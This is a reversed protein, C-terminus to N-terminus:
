RGQQLTFASQTGIGTFSGSWGRITFTLSQQSPQDATIQFDTKPLARRLYAAVTAADPSTIVGTLANPQDVRTDIVTSRPLSFAGTPGHSFGFAALAVGDAPIRVKAPPPPFTQRGHTHEAAGCGTVTTLLTLVVVALLRRIVQARCSVQSYMFTLRIAIGQAM